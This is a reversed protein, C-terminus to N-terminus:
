GSADRGSCDSRKELLETNALGGDPVSTFPLGPTLATLSDALHAFTVFRSQRMGGSLMSAHSTVFSLVFRMLLQVVIYLVGNAVRHIRRPEVVGIIGRDMDELDVM